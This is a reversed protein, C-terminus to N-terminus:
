LTVLQFYTELCKSAKNGVVTHLRVPNDLHAPEEYKPLQGSGTCSLAIVFVKKLRIKGFINKSSQLSWAM